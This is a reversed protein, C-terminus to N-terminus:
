IKNLVYDPHKSPEPEWEGRNGSLKLILKKVRSSEESSQLLGKVEGDNKIRSSPSLWSLLGDKGV